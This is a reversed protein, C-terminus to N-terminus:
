ATVMKMKRYENASVGTYLKFKKYFWDMEYYGVENAIEYVKMETKELLQKAKEMRQQLLYANFTMNEHYKFKQGLYSYNFHLTSSIEKLTINQGLSETVYEKVKDIVSEELDDAIDFSAKKNEAKEENLKRNMLQLCIRMDESSVPAPLYDSVQYQMAKRALQFDTSDSILIIPVPSIARVHKCLTIGQEPCKVIDIILLSYCKSKLLSLASDSENTYDELIFGLNNWNFFDQSKADWHHHLDVFLIKYM